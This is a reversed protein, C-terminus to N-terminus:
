YVLKNVKGRVLQVPHRAVVKDGKMLELSAADDPVAFTPSQGDTLRLLTTSMSSAAEFVTVTLPKGNQDLFRVLDPVVGGSSVEVKAHLRRRVEILLGTAQGSSASEIGQQDRGFSRPMIHDGSLRLYAFRKPVDRLEFRGKADTEIAPRQDGSLERISGIRIVSTTIALQLRVKPVPEGQRDVVTGSLKPFIGAEPVRIEADKRGAPLPTSTTMLLTAEDMASLVYDRRQLGGLRFRGASDTRVWHWLATPTNRFFDTIGSSSKRARLERMVEKKTMAGALMGEVPVCQNEVRGFITPNDIWVKVGPLPEGQASVVRGEIALAARGLQLTVFRPWPGPQGDADVPLTAVAPQYGKELAILRGSGAQVAEFRFEGSADTKVTSTGLAVLAGAVPAGVADIVVGRLRAGGSDRAKLVCAVRAAAARDQPLPLLGPLYGDAIALIRAGAVRGAAPLQFSGDGAAQTHWDFSRSSDLILDLDGRLGEPLLVRVRAAPVPRGETDRVSGRIPLAPVVVVVHERKAAGGSVDAAFLTTFDESAALIQGRPAPAPFTFRGDRDSTALVRGERGLSEPLFVGEHFRLPVGGLPRGNGGFVTGRLVIADAGEANGEELKPYPQREPAVVRAAKEPLMGDPMKSATVPSEADGKESALGGASGDPWFAYSAALVAIASVAVAVKANVTLAGILPVSVQRIETLAHLALIWARRNGDHSRDLRSRLKALGRELRTDVTKVPVGLRKAIQRPPLEQLYRLIVTSRYPEDLDLVAQALRKHTEVREVLEHTSPLVEERGVRRERERRRHEGRRNQRVRNRLITALWARLHVHGEPMRELATVCTDQALDDALVGDGVLRKALARVWATHALLDHPDSSSERKMSQFSDRARDIGRLFHVPIQGSM